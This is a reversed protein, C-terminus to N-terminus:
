LRHARRHGRGGRHGESGSTIRRRPTADVAHRRRTAGGACRRLLDPEAPGGVAHPDRIGDVAGPRREDDRRAPEAVELEVPLARDPPVEEGIEAPERRDDPEVLPAVAEGVPVDGVERQVHPDGVELRDDLVGPVRPEREHGHGLASRDGDPVRRLVGLPDGPQQEVVAVGVRGPVLRRLLGLDLVREVLHDLDAPRTRVRREAAHEGRHEDRGRGLLLLAPEVLQLPDRGRRGRRVGGTM